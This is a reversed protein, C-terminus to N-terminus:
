LVIWGVLRRAAEQAPVWDGVERGHALEDLALKVESARDDGADFLQDLLERGRPEVANVLLRAAITEPEGDGAPEEVALRELLDRADDDALDLADRFTASGALLVFVRKATPDSFLAADLWDAVMEPEHIAWRLVDLERRDIPPRPAVRRQTEPDSEPEPDFRRRPAERPAPAPRSAASGVANRLANAEIDLRAALQMVYQDRVLENPHQGVISAAGQGARGRGEATTLDAAALLRDVRFQLFPTANEVAQLLM